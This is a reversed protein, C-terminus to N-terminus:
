VIKNYVDNLKNALNYGKNRSVYGGNADPRDPITYKVNGNRIDYLYTIGEIDDYSLKFIIEGDDTIAESYWFNNEDAKSPDSVWMLTESINKYIDPHYLSKYHWLYHGYNDTIMLDNQDEKTYYKTYYDFKKSLEGITNVNYVKIVDGKLKKMTETVDTYKGADPRIIVERGKKFIEKQRAPSLNKPEPYEKPVVIM